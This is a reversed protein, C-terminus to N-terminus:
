ENRNRPLEIIFTRLKGDKEVKSDMYIKANHYTALKSAIFLGLGKGNRKNTFYPKFIDNQIEPAVGPGNDYVSIVKAVSDIDVVIKRNTDGSQVSQCLWYVSNTLLNELIQAILGRVMKVKVCKQQELGDITLKAKIGHRNFQPQYGDLITRIQASIDYVSKRQREAPSSVDIISIRKKTAIIQLKLEEIIRLMQNPNKIGEYELRSLLQSTHDTVRSLEHAIIDVLQGLNALELIDTNKELSIELEAQLLDIYEKQNKMLSEIDSIIKQDEKNCKNKLELLKRITHNNLIDSRNISDELVNKAILQMKEKEETIFSKADKLIFECMIQKLTEFENNEILLQRSASDKLNPNNFKTINITGVTQFRNFLYGSSQLAKSDMNLWDDDLSGTNGIRFGDRYIAFGGIWKNLESTINKLSKEIKMIEANKVLDRRNFWLFQVEFPGLDNLDKISVNVANALEEFNLSRSNINTHNFWQYERHLGIKKNNSKNYQYIKYTVQANAIKKLWKPIPPIAIRNDSNFYIDIPFTSKEFNLPNSLRQIYNEIFINIKKRDWRSILEKIVITTGSIFDKSSLEEKINVNIDSLNLDPNDFQTWDFQITNLNTEDKTKSKIEAINGLRMMSLRGIGKEGLIVRDEMINQAHIKYPTGITLFVKELTTKSMGCGNDSIIISYFKTQINNLENELTNKNIRGAVDEIYSLFESSNTRQDLLYNDSQEKKIKIILQAINISSSIFENFLDKLKEIDLPYNIYIKVRPSGADFANKLLENLAMADSTILDGGLHRLVRASIKFTSDM